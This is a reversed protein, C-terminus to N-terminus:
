EIRGKTTMTRIITKTDGGLANAKGSSSVVVGRGIVVNVPGTFPIRTGNRIVIIGRSSCGAGCRVRKMIFRCRNLCISFVTPLFVVLRRLLIEYIEYYSNKKVKKWDIM